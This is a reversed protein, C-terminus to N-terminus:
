QPDRIIGAFLLSGTQTDRILVLFPRDVRMIPIPPPPMRPAASRPVMVATAATATTGQEDVDLTARHLVEGIKANGIGMPTFDAGNAFVPAMGLASLPEKLSTKFDAKFRPLHLELRTAKMAGLWKTVAPGSTEQVLTSVSVGPKPLFVLLSVRGTGYPLSAAQFQPTDSYAFEAVQGMMQVTKTGGGAPHFPKPTTGAKEFPKQWKGHFYIADTLVALSAAIDRPTVIETIKGQTHTGVWANITQAGAPISFDLTTAQAHYFQKAGAQFAPSFALGKNAWLANAVTVKVEPDSALAPLLRANAANIRDQSLAALGLTRAMEARTQGGAGSMTLTLAQSVSFPSFFVNGGPKDAALRHLLRFGFDSGAAGVAQVDSGPAASASSGAALTALTLLALLAFITKLM